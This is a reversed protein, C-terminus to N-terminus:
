AKGEGDPYRRRYYGTLGALIRLVAPPYVAWALMRVGFVTWAMRLLRLVEGGGERSVTVCVASLGHAECRLRLWTALWAPMGAVRAAAVVSAWIRLNDLQQPGKATATTNGGHQRWVGVCRDLLVVNGQTALRYLSEWDSSIAPSRYFDLLFAKKRDYVVAMHMLQHEAPLEAVLVLGCVRRVGLTVGFTQEPNESTSAYGAVMVCAPDEEFFSMAEAIFGPDLFYDDGDLNVVYDGSALEYFLRRYNGVRGLNRENRVIKLRPDDFRELRALTDDPSADDCVIVELNSWTQGLASEVAQEVFAAQVYAPIM